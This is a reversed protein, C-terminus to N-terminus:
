RSRLREDGFKSGIDGRTCSPLDGTFINLGTKAAESLRCNRVLWDESTEEGIKIKQHFSSRRSKSHVCYIESRYHLNFLLTM